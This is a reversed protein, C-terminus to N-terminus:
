SWDERSAVPLPPPLHQPAFCSVMLHYLMLLGGVPLALYPVIMSVGTAPATQRTAIGLFENGKVTLLLLFVAVLLRGVWVVVSQVRGPVADVLFTVAIHGGYRLVLGAGLMTVWIMAFRAFEEPWSLSDSLVYRYFVGLVVSVVMTAMLLVVVIGTTWVILQDILVVPRRLSIKRAM